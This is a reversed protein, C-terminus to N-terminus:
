RIPKRGVEATRPLGPKSTLRSAVRASAALPAVSRLVIRRYCPADTAPDSGQSFIGLRRPGPATELAVTPARTCSSSLATTAFTRARRVADKSQRGGTRSERCLRADWEADQRSLTHLAGAVHTM